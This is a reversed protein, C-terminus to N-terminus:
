AFRVNSNHRKVAVTAGWETVRQVEISSTIRDNVNHSVRGDPREMEMSIARIVQLM